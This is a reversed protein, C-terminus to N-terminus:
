YTPFLMSSNSISKKLYESAIKSSQLFHIYSDIHNFATELYNLDYLCRLVHAKIDNRFYISEVSNVFINRFSIKSAYELAKQFDNILFESHALSYHKICKRYELNTQRLNNSIFNDLRLQDNLKLCTIIIDRYLNLNIIGEKFYTIKFKLMELM